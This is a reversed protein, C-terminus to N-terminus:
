DATGYNLTITDITVEFDEDAVASGEKYSITIVANETNSNTTNELKHGSINSTTATVATDSGVKVSVEIGKCAEKVLSNTEGASCSVGNGFNISNLYAVYAGDNLVPITYSVSQGPSTFNAKIGEVSTDNVTADDGTAGSTSTASVKGGNSTFKVSFTDDTPSVKAGSNITLNRSFSAFGIGLGVVSLVLAILAITKGNSKEM